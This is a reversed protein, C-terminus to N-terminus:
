SQLLNQIHACYPHKHSMFGEGNPALLLRCLVVPSDIYAEQIGTLRIDDM